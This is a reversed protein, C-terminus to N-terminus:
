ELGTAFHRMVWDEGLYEFCDNLFDALEQPNLEYELGVPEVHHHFYEGFYHHCFPLYDRTHLIFAHWIEDLPLLPGFLYTYRNKIQRYVNLWMWALLDTFLSRAQEQAYNPHHHCFYRIVQENEYALLESLSPLRM